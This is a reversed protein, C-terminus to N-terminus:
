VLRIPAFGHAGANNPSPAQTSPKSQHYTPDMMIDRWIHLLDYWIPM